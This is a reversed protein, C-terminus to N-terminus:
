LVSLRDERWQGVHVARLNDLMNHDHAIKERGEAEENHDQSQICATLDDADDTDLVVQNYNGHYTCGQNGM